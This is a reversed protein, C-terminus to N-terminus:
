PSPSSSSSYSSFMSSISIHSSSSFQVEAPGATSEDAGARLSAIYNNIKVFEVVLRAFPNVRDPSDPDNEALFSSIADTAANFAATLPPLGTDPKGNIRIEFLEQRLRFLDLNYNRCLQRLHELFKDFKNGSNVLAGGLIAGPSTVEPMHNNPMGGGTPKTGIFEDPFVPSHGPSGPFARTEPYDLFVPYRELLNPHKKYYHKGAPRDLTPDESLRPQHKIPKAM